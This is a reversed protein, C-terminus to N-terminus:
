SFALPPAALVAAAATAAAGTGVVTGDALRGRAVVEVAVGVMTVDPLCGENKSCKINNPM